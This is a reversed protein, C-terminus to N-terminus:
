DYVNAYKFEGCWATPQVPPFSSAFKQDSNICVQPPFRHCHLIPGGQAFYCKQCQEEMLGGGIIESQNVKGM